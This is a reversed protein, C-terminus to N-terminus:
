HNFINASRVPSGPETGLIELPDSLRRLGRVSYLTTRICVYLLVSMRVIFYIIRFLFFIIYDGKELCLHIFIMSFIGQSHLERFRGKMTLSLFSHIIIVHIYLSFVCRETVM